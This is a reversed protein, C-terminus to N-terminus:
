RRARRRREVAAATKETAELLCSVREKGLARYEGRPSCGRREIDPERM